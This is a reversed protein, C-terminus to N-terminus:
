INLAIKEEKIRLDIGKIELISATVVRRIEMSVKRKVILAM